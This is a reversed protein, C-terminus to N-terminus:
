PLLHLLVSQLSSLRPLLYIQCRSYGQGNRKTVWIGRGCACDTNFCVNQTQAQLRLHKHKAGIPWLKAELQVLVPNDSCPFRSYNQNWIIHHLHGCRQLTSHTWLYSGCSVRNRQKIKIVPMTLVIFSSKQTNQSKLLVDSPCEVNVRFRMEYLQRWQVNRGSM